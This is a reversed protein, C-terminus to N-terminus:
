IIAVFDADVDCRLGAHNAQLLAFRSEVFEPLGGFDAPHRFTMDGIQLRRRVVLCGVRGPPTRVGVVSSHKGRPSSKWGTGVRYPSSREARGVPVTVARWRTREIGLPTTEAKQVPLGM